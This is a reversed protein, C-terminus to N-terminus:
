ATGNRALAITTWMMAEVLKKAALDREYGSPCSEMVQRTLDMATALLRKHKELTSGGKQLLPAFQNEVRELLLKDDASLGM